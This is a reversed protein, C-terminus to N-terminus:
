NSAKVTYYGNGNYDPPSLFFLINNHIGMATTTRWHNFGNQKAIIDFQKANEVYKQYSENTSVNKKGTESAHYCYADIALVQLNQKHAQICIDAGYFHFGTLQKSFRLDHTKNIILCLEDLSFVNTTNYVYNFIKNFKSNLLYFYTGNNLTVGAPGLVGWQTRGIELSKIHMEVKNLWDPPLIVDQHIFIVYKGNSIDLADNFAHTVNKYMNYFNAIAIVEINHNGIQNSLSDTFSKYEQLNNVLTVVSIYVQQPLYQKWKKEVSKNKFYLTDQQIINIKDLTIEGGVRSANDIHIIEANRNCYNQKKLEINIKLMLDVDQYIDNYNEDMGNINKYDSTKMLVCAATNGDVRHTRHEQQSLVNKTLGLHLHGPASINGNRDFIHQGDHQIKQNQYYMRCGVSGVAEFTSIQMMESIYDNLAITDNNQLIVYETEVYKQIALNYNKSFHYYNLQVLQYGWNNKICQSKVSEYYEYVQQNQSGTDIIMITIYHYKVHTFISQCCEKILNISDKTLIAITVSPNHNYNYYEELHKIQTNVLSRIDTSTTPINQPKQETIHTKIKVPPTITPQNPIVTKLTKEVTTLGQISALSDPGQIIVGPNISHRNGNIILKIPHQTINKFFSM